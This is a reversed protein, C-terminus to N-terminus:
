KIDFVIPSDYINPFATYSEALLHTKYENLVAKQTLLNFFNHNATCGGIGEGIYILQSKKPLHQLINFAFDNDYNPWSLIFSNYKLCNNKLYSVADEEIIPYYYKTFNYQNQNIDIDVAEIDINLESLKSSLFGTGAGIDLVKRNQLNDALKTLFNNNLCSFGYHTIYFERIQFLFMSLEFHERSQEILSPNLIGTNLSEISMELIDSKIPYFSIINKYFSRVEDKIPTPNLSETDLKIRKNNIKM